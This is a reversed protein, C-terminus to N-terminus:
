GGNQVLRILTGDLDVLAGVKGGWAERKPRHVRPWGTTTEPIGAAIVEDFFADVDDLRFCCSFWSEAPDLDAHRFFELLLDRRRLIMWDEDRWTEIFGFKAYFRSTADFDRSPLNPSAIDTM